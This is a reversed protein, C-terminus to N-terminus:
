SNGQSAKENVAKDIEDEEPAINGPLAIYIGKEDAYLDLMDGAKVGHRRAYRGPITIGLGRLGQRFVRHQGFFYM